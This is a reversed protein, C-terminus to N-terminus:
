LNSKIYIEFWQSFGSHMSQWEQYSFIYRHKDICFVLEDTKDSTHANILQQYVDIASQRNKLRIDVTEVGDEQLVLDLKDWCFQGSGM